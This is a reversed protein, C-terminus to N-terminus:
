PPAPKEAEFPNEKGKEPPLPLPPAPEQLEQFIPHKLMEFDIQIQPPPVPLEGLRGPTRFVGYWFVGGMLLLAILFAMLLYWKRKGAQIFTIAM